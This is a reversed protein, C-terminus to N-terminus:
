KPQYRVGVFVTRGATDYDKRLEYKKDLINGARAFFTLEKDVRYDARLGLTTYGGLRQTNGADNYRAGSAFAEAGAKWM